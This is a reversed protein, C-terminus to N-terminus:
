SKLHVNHIGKPPTQKGVKKLEATFNAVSIRLEVRLPARTQSPVKSLGSAAAM